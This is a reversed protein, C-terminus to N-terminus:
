GGFQPNPCYNNELKVLTEPSSAQIIAELKFDLHIPELKKQFKTQKENQELKTQHAKNKEKNKQLCTEGHIGPQGWVLSGRAEAEQSSPCCTHVVM